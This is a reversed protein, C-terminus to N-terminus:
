LPPGLFGPFFCPTNKVQNKTPTKNVGPNAGMYLILWKSSGSFFCEWENEPKLAWRPSLMQSVAFFIIKAVPETLKISETIKKFQPSIM